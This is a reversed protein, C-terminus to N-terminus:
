KRAAGSKKRAAADLKALCKDAEKMFDDGCGECCFLVLRDAKGPERYAFVAVDAPDGLKEDSSLCANLPYSKREKAVWAADLQAAPVLRGKAAAPASPAPDKRSSDAAAVLTTAFLGSVIAVLPLLRPKM